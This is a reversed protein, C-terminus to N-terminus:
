TLAKSGSRGPDANMKEGPAPDLLSFTSFSFFIPVTGPYRYYQLQLFNLKLLNPGSEHNKVESCDKKTKKLPLFSKM